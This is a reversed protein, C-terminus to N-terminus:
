SVPRIKMETGKLSTSLGKWSSWIVGITTKKGLNYPGNLNSQMCYSFWWGGKFIAACNRDAIDNDNDCTSFDRGRHYYISNRTRIIDEPCGAQGSGKWEKRLREQFFGATHPLSSFPQKLSSYSAESGGKQKTYVPYSHELSQLSMWVPKHSNLHMLEDHIPLDPDANIASAVRAMDKIGYFAVKLKANALDNSLHFATIMTSKLPNASLRWCTFYEEMKKLDQTLIQGIDDLSRGQSTLALDDTYASSRARRLALVNSSTNAKMTENGIRFAKYKAFRTSGAEDMLDIRLEYNRQSMMLHIKDNGLWHESTLNGFGTKYDIWLRNFQESGDSRRQFVTWNGGDTDMDCYVQFSQNGGAPQVEYLGSTRPQSEDIESCDHPLLVKETNEAFQPVTKSTDTEASTATGADLKAEALCQTKLVTRRCQNWRPMRPLLKWRNMTTANQFSQKCMSTTKTCAANSNDALCILAFAVAVTSVM